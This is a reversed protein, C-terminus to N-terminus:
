EAVLILKNSDAFCIDNIIHKLKNAILLFLISIPHILKNEVLILKNM